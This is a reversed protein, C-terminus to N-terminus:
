AAGGYLKNLYSEFTFGYGNLQYPNTNGSDIGMAQSYMNRYNSVIQNQDQLSTTGYDFQFDQSTQFNGAQPDVLTPRGSDPRDDMPTASYQSYVSQASNLAALKQGATGGLKDGVKGVGKEVAGTAQSLLTPKGTIPNIQVPAGTAGNVWQGNTGMDANWTISDPSIPTAAFEISSSVNTNLLEVNANSLPTTTITGSEVLNGASDLIDPTKIINGAKDFSTEVWQKTAENYSVPTGSQGAKVVTGDASVTRETGLLESGSPAIAATTDFTGFSKAGDTVSKTMNGWWSGTSGEIGAAATQGTIANWSAGVMDTITGFIKGPASAVYNLANGAFKVITGLTGGMGAGWGAIAAGIGPLFMMLAMTGIPGLKNFVKAFPKLVKKFAKGIKKGIKKLGRGIKKGIKRLKGM